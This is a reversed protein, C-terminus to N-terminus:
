PRNCTADPAPAALRRLPPHFAGGPREAETRGRHVRRRAVHWRGTDGGRARHQEDDKGLARRRRWVRGKGHASNPRRNEAPRCVRLDRKVLMIYVTKWSIYQNQVEFKQKLAVNKKKRSGHIFPAKFATLCWCPRGM